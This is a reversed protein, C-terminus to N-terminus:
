AAGRQVATIEALISLAIEAPTKAGIHLGVPAHLRALQREEVGAARLRALRRAHTKRSGLVGIYAPRQQLAALIAPDDLKPDHSLIVVFVNEHLKLQPLMEQPWRNDIRAVHPFRRANAFSKRPDILTIEYGLEAALRTLPVAIHVGGIVLLQPPPLIPELLCDCGALNTRLPSRPLNGFDIGEQVARQLEANDFAGVQRGPQLWIQQVSDATHEPLLTILVGTQQRHVAQRVANMVPDAADLPQVLVELKGGCALGVAWADDNSIGFHLRRTRGDRITAMAQELVASEVCGGSVSGVMDTESSVAMHSGLPRPASGWTQVVTAIAIRKGAALWTEIDAFIERM